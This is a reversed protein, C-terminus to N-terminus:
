PTTASVLASTTRVPPPTEAKLQVKRFSAARGVRREGKKGGARAEREWRCLTTEHIDLAAALVRARTGARRLEKKLVGGADRVERPAGSPASATTAITAKLEAVKSKQEDTMM